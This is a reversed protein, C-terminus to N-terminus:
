PNYRLNYYPNMLTYIHIIILTHIYKLEHHHENQREDNSHQREYDDLDDM